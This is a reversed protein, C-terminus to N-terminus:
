SIVLAIISVISLFTCVMTLKSKNEFDGSYFMPNLQGFLDYKKLFNVIKM